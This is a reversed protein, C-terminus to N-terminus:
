RVLTIVKLFSSQNGVNGGGNAKLGPALMLRGFVTDPGPTVAPPCEIFLGMINEIPVGTAKGNKALALDDPSILPLAVLRPSVGYPSGAIGGHGGNLSPDWYASKDQNCLSDPDTYTAQKTKGTINGTELTVT